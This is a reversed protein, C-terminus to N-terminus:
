KAPWTERNVRKGEWWSPIFCVVIYDLTTEKHLMARNPDSCGVVLYKGQPHLTFRVVYAKRLEQRFFRSVDFVSIAHGGTVYSTGNDRPRITRRVSKVLPCRGWRM